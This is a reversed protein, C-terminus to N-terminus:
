FHLNSSNIALRLTAKGWLRKRMHGTSNHFQDPYYGSWNQTLSSPVTAAAGPQPIEVGNCQYRGDYM